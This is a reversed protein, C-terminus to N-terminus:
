NGSQMEVRYTGNDNFMKTTAAKQGMQDVLGIEPHAFRAPLAFEFLHHSEALQPHSGGLRNGERIFSAQKVGGPQDGPFDLGHLGHCLQAARSGMPNYLSQTLQGPLRRDQDVMANQMSIEMGSINQDIILILDIYNIQVFRPGIGATLCPKPGLVKPAPAPRDTFVTQGCREAFKRRTIM